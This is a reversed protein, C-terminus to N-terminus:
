HIKEWFKSPNQPNSRQFTEVLLPHTIWNAKGFIYNSNELLFFDRISVSFLFFGFNQM